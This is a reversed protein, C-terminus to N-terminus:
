DNRVLKDQIYKLFERMTKFYETLYDINITIEEGDIVVIMGVHRRFENISEYDKANIIKKFIVYQTMHKSIIPDAFKERVMIARAHPASPAEFIVHKEELDKLMAEIMYDYCEIMRIVVNKLVDVTRTYKLSVYILHDVRRLEDTSNTLAEIM